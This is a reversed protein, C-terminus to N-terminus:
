QAPVPVFTSIKWGQRTRVAMENILFTLTNAPQGLAGITIKCPAYIQAVDATIPIIRIAAQDPEMAWVGGFQKRFHEMVADRGWFTYARAVFSVPDPAGEDVRLIIDDMADIDHATEAAAQSIFLRRIDQIDSESMVDPRFSTM